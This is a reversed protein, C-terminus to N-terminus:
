SRRRAIQPVRQNIHIRALQQELQVAMAILQASVSAQDIRAAQQRYEGAKGRLYSTAEAMDSM